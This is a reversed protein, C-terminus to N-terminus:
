AFPLTQDIATLRLLEAVHGSARTVRLRGAGSEEDRRHARLLIRLGHSDVFTLEDIDVLITTADSAEAALLAQETLECGALDLEGHLRVVYTDGDREAQIEFPRDAGV